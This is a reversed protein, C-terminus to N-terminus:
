RFDDDFAAQSHGTNGTQHHFVSMSLDPSVFGMILAVGDPLDFLPKLKAANLESHSLYATKIDPTDAAINATPITQPRAAPTAPVSATKPTDSKSFMSFM